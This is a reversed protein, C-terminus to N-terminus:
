PHTYKGRLIHTHWTNAITPMADVVGLIVVAVGALATVLVVVVIVVAAAVAAM